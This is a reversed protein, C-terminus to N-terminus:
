FTTFGKHEQSITQRGKNQVRNNQRGKKGVKKEGNNEINVILCAFFKQKEDRNATEKEQQLDLKKTL